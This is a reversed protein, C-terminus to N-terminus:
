QKRQQVGHGSIRDFGPGTRDVPLMQIAGAHRCTIRDEGHMRGQNPLDEDIFGISEFFADHRAARELRDQAVRDQDGFADAHCRGAAAWQKSPFLQQL